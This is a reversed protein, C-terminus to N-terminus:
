EYLHKCKEKERPDCRMELNELNNVEKDGTGTSLNAETAMQMRISPLPGHPVDLSHTIFGGWGEGHGSAEAWIARLSLQPLDCKPVLTKAGPGRPTGQLVAVESPAGELAIEAPTAWATPCDGKRIVEKFSSPSHSYRLKEGRAGM